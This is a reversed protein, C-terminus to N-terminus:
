VSLRTCANDEIPRLQNGERTHRLFREEVRVDALDEIDSTVRSIPGQDVYFAVLATWLKERSSVDFFRQRVLSNWISGGPSFGSSSAYFLLTRQIEIQEGYNPVGGMANYVGDITLPTKLRQNSDSMSRVLERGNMIGEGKHESVHIPFGFVETVVNCYDSVDRGCRGLLQKKQDAKMRTVIGVHAGTALCIGHTISANVYFVFSAGPLNLGYAMSINGVIVGLRHDRSLAMTRNAESAKGHLQAVPVNL